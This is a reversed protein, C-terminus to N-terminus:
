LTHIENTWSAEHTNKVSETKKAFKGDVSIEIYPSPKKPILAQDLVIRVVAFKSACKLCPVEMVRLLVKGSLNLQHIAPHNNNRSAASSSSSSSAAAAM